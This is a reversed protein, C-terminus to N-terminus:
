GSVQQRLAPAYRFRMAHISDKVRLASRLWATISTEASTTTIRLANDPDSPSAIPLISRSGRSDYGARTQHQDVLLRVRMRQAQAGRSAYHAPIRLVSHSESCAAEGRLGNM